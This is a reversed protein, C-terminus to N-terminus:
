RITSIPAVRGSNNGRQERSSDHGESSLKAALDELRMRERTLKKRRKEALKLRKKVRELDEEIAAQRRLWREREALTLLVAELDM